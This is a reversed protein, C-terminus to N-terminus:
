HSDFYVKFCHLNMPELRLPQSVSREARTYLLSLSSEFVQLVHINDAFMASLQPDRHTSECDADTLSEELNYNKQFIQRHVILAVSRHSDNTSRLNVLDTDCSLGQHLPLYQLVDGDSVSSSRLALMLVPQERLRRVLLMGLLSPAPVLSPERTPTSSKEILLLFRSFVPRNDMIGEGLGRNDDYQLRRDLMVELSGDLQSSTGFPQSMIVSLRMQRDEIYLASTAPYYNAERPLTSYRRRQMTHFGNQDTFFIGDCYFFNLCLWTEILGRAMGLM